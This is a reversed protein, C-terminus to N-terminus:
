LASALGLYVAYVAATMLAGLLTKGVSTDPASLPVVVRQGPHLNLEFVKEPGDSAAVMVTAPGSPVGSVVVRATNADEAIEVGNVTICAHDVAHTFRLEVTASDAPAAAGPFAVRLDHACALALVGAVAAIPHTRM